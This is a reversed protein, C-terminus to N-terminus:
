DFFQLYMYAPQLSVETIKKNAQMRDLLLYVEQQVERHHKYSKTLFKDLVWKSNQIDAEFAAKTIFHYEVGEREHCKRARTTDEPWM